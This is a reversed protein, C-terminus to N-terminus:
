VSATLSARKSRRDAPGFTATIVAAIHSPFLSWFIRSVKGSWNKSTPMQSLWATAKAAPMALAPAPRDHVDVAREELPKSWIKWSTPELVQRHDEPEVAGAQDAGVPRGVVASVVEGVHSHEGVHHHHRRPNFKEQLEPKAAVEQDIWHPVGADIAGATDTRPIILDALKSVTDYDSQSFYSPGSPTVPLPTQDAIEHLHHEAEATDALLPSLAASTAAAALKILATRRSHM